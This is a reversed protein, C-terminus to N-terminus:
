TRKRFTTAHYASGLKDHFPVRGGGVAVQEEIDCFLGKSNKDGAVKQPIMATNGCQLGMRMSAEGVM